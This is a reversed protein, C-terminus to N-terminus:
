NAAQMIKTVMQTIYEESKGESNTIANAILITHLHSGSNIWVHGNMGIALEFPVHKGILNLILCEEDLLSRALKLSVSIVYGGTLPGFLNEGTVWEKKFHPSICTLEPDMDRNAAAVRAYVVDGVKLDPKNRKTAGEFAYASLLAPSSSNIDLRYSEPHKEIITGVLVDDLSPLYQLFSSVPSVLLSSTFQSFFSM